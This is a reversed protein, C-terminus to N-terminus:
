DMENEWQVCDKKLIPGHSWVSLTQSQFFFGDM